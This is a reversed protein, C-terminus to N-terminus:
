EIEIIEKIKQREMEVVGEKNTGVKTGKRSKFLFTSESKGMEEQVFRLEESDEILQRRGDNLPLYKDLIRQREQILNECEKFELYKKITPDNISEM